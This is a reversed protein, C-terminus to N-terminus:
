YLLWERKYEFYGMFISAMFPYIQLQERERNWAYYTIFIDLREAIDKGLSNIHGM